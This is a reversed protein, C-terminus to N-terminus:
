TSDDRLSQRRTWALILFIAAEVLVIVAAFTFGTAAPTWSTGRLWYGLTVLPANWVFTGLATALLFPVFPLGIVGAPLALYIRATPVIQGVATVWFRHRGYADALRRYLHPPLLFYKGYRDILRECRARGVLWGFAYWGVAGGVSGATAAAVAAALEGTSDVTALGLLLLRRRLPRQTLLPLSSIVAAIPGVALRPLLRPANYADFALVRADGYRAQLLERFQPNAEVLVLRAPDVGREVLARTVAGTGAGLEVIAGPVAPDVPAAMARSLDRGSPLQAGTRLPAEFWARLFRARDAEARYDTVDIKLPVM